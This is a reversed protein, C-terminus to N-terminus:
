SIIKMGMVPPTKQWFRSNQSKLIKRTKKKTWVWGSHIPYPKFREIEYCNRANSTIIWDSTTIIKQVWASGVEASAAKREQHLLTMETHRTADAGKMFAGHSPDTPLSQDARLLIYRSSWSSKCGFYAQFIINRWPVYPFPKFKKESFNQKKCIHWKPSFM